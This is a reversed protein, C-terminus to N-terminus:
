KFKNIEKFEIVDHKKAYGRCVDIYEKNRYFALVISKVAQYGINFKGRLEMEFSTWSIEEGNVIKLSYNEFISRISDITKDDWEFEEKLREM